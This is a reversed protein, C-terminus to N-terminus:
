CFEEPNKVYNSDSQGCAVCEFTEDKIRQGLLFNMMTLMVKNHLESAMTMHCSLEQLANYMERETWQMLYLLKDIGSCYKMVHLESTHNFGGGLGAVVLYVKCNKLEEQNLEALLAYYNMEVSTSGM